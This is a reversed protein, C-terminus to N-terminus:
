QPKLQIDINYLDYLMKGTIEEINIADTNFFTSIDNLLELHNNQTDLIVFNNKKYCESTLSSNLKTIDLKHKIKHFYNCYLSLLFLVRFYSDKNKDINSLLENFEKEKKTQKQNKLSNYIDKIEQKANQYLQEKSLNKDYIVEIKRKSM